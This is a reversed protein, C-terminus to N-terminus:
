EASPTGPTLEGLRPQPQFIFREVELAFVLRELEEEVEIRELAYVDSTPRAFANRSTAAAAYGTEQVVRRVDPTMYREAGGNPYSFMTVAEGIADELMRKSETLERRAAEVGANPLNPHTLTHGGITMGLRHMERLQEWTLMCDPMSAGGAAARVQERLRERVPITNAKFLKNLQRVAARREAETATPIRIPTGTADLELVPTKLDLVLARVESPWFPAGGSLCGATIFFTASVGYRHLTRAAELNDAYGDDFTIVVTNPPLTQGARMRAVVEPMPLVAYHQSLYQIHADFAAPTVSIGPDAYRSGEDGCVAHYRLIAVLRSPAAARLLSLAGSRFLATKALPAIRSRLSAM